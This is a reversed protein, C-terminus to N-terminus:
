SSSGQHFKSLDRPQFRAQRPESGGSNSDQVSGLGFGGSGRQSANLDTKLLDVRQCLNSVVFSTVENVENLSIVNGYYYYYGYYM